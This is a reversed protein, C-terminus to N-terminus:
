QKQKNEDGHKVFMKTWDEYDEPNPLLDGEVAKTWDPKNVKPADKGLRKRLREGHEALDSCLLQSFFICDDTLSCIADISDPYSQDVHGNPDPLGFYFRILNNGLVEPTNKWTDILENRSVISQNLSDITRILTNTLTHARAGASIQEFVQKVLIEGPMTMPNLIKFDAQFIFEENSAIQANRMRQIFQNLSTKAREFQLGLDKVHQNKIALFSNCIEFSVM